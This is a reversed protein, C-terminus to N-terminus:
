DWTFVLLAHTFREARREYNMTWGFGRKVKSTTTRLQGVMEWTSFYFLTQLAGPAVSAGGLKKDCM